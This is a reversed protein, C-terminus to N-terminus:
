STLKITHGLFWSLLGGYGYVFFALCMPEYAFFMNSNKKKASLQTKGVIWSPVPSISIEGHNLCLWWVSAWNLHHATCFPEFLALIVPDCNLTGLLSSQLPCGQNNLCTNNNCPVLNLEYVSQMVYLYLFLIFHTNFCQVMNLYCWGVTSTLWYCNLDM